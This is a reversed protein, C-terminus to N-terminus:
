RVAPPETAESQDDPTLTAPGLILLWAVGALAAVISAIFIGVKAQDVLLDDDFALDAIFLSVTFGIGGLAALPGLERPRMDSPLEGFRLRLAGLASLSIGVTKGLVLAVAVAWTLPAALADALIGDRLYVGANALAFLPLVVFASIPHLRHVLSDLVNRGHLEGAPTLLGAIVGAITAHVGSEFLSFWLVFGPLLYWWPSSVWRRMGLMALVALAAPVLWLVKIGDTYFVAIVLIALIDDVIAISLLLLKAGSTARSGTLALVGVAFAIDTAMPIGWGARAEGAPAMLVFILAPLVVGGVAAVAPLAAARPSRLEGVALERKIELGVVFFFLVMLADNVWHELDETIAHDGFGLTLEHHWLATYSDAFASNAWILAIAATAVLVVASASEEHLFERLAKTM